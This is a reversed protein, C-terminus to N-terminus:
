CNDGAHTQFVVATMHRPGVLQGAAPPPTRVNWGAHLVSQM